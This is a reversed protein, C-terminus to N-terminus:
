IWVGHRGGRRRLGAGRAPGPQHTARDPVAQQLAEAVVDVQGDGAVGFGNARASPSASHPATNAYESRNEAQRM